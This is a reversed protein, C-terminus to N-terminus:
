VTGINEQSSTGDNWEKSDYIYKLKKRASTRTRKLAKYGRKMLELKTNEECQKRTKVGKGFALGTEVDVAVWVTKGDHKGKYFGVKVPQCDCLYEEIVGEKVVVHADDYSRGYLCKILM